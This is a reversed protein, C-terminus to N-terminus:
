RPASPQNITRHYDDIKVIYSFAGMLMAEIATKIDDPPSLMLVPIYPQKLFGKLFDKGFYETFSHDLLVAVSNKLRTTLEKRSTIVRANYAHGITEILEGFEETNRSAIIVSEM